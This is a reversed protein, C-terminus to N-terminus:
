AHPGGTKAAPWRRQMALRAIILVAGACVLLASKQLLTMQLSYYYYSWYAILGLIGLGTLV